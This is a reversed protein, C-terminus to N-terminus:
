GPLSLIANFIAFHSKHVPKKHRRNAEAIKAKHEQTMPGRTRGMHAISMKARAEVSMKKGLNSMSIAKKHGESMPGTKRGLHSRRMKDKTEQTHPKMKMGTRRLSQAARQEPTRIAGLSSSAMPSMNFGFLGFAGLTEIWYQERNVLRNKLGRKDSIMELIEFAFVDAGYKKWSRQLRISHHNGKELRSRHVSWRAPYDVASGVYVKGDVINRIVYIAPQRM